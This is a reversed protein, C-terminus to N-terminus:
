DSMVVFFAGVMCCTCVQAKHAMPLGCITHPEWKLNGLLIFIAQTFRIKLHVAFLKRLYSCGM